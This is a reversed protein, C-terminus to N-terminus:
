PNSDGRTWWLEWLVFPRADGRGLRRAEQLAHPKRARVGFFKSARKSHEESREDIVAVCADCTARDVIGLHLEAHVSGRFAVDGAYMPNPLM